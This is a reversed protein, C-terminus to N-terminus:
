SASSDVRSIYRLATPLNGQEALLLAYGRLTDSTIPNLLLSGVYLEEAERPLQMRALYSAAHGIVLSSNPCVTACERVLAHGAYQKVYKAAMRVALIHLM